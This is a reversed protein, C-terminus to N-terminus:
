GFKLTCLKTPLSAWCLSSSKQVAVVLTYELCVCIALCFSSLLVTTNFVIHPFFLFSFVAIGFMHESNSTVFHYYKFARDKWFLTHIKSLKSLELINHSCNRGSFEPACSIDKSLNILGLFSPVHSTHSIKHPWWSDCSLLTTWRTLIKQLYYSPPLKARFTRSMKCSKVCQRGLRGVM